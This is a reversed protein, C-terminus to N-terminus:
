PLVSPLSPAALLTSALSLLPGSDAALASMSPGADSAVPNCRPQASGGMQAM